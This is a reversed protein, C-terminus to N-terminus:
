GHSRQQTSGAASVGAYNVGGRRRRRAVEDPYLTQFVTDHVMERAATQVNDFQLFWAVTRLAIYGCGVVGAGAGLAFYGLKIKM